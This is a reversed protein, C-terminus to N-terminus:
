QRGKSKMIVFILNKKNESDHEESIQQDTTAQGAEYDITTKNDSDM